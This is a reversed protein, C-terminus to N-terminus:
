DTLTNGIMSRIMMQHLRKAQVKLYISFCLSISASSLSFNYDSLQGANAARAEGGM